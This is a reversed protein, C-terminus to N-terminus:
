APLEQISITAQTPDITIANGTVDLARIRASVATGAVVPASLVDFCAGFRAGPVASAQELQTALAVYGAGINLEITATIQDAATASGSVSGSIRLRGGTRTTLIPSVLTYDIAGVNAIEINSVYNSLAEYASQGFRKGQEEPQPVFGHRLDM